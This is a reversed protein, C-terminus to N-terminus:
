DHRRVVRIKDSEMGVLGYICGYSHKDLCFAVTTDRTVLFTDNNEQYCYKEFFSDFSMSAYDKMVEKNKKVYSGRVNRISDHREETLLAKRFASLYPYKGYYKSYLVRMGSYITRIDMECIAYLSDGKDIFHLTQDGCIAITDLSTTSQSKLAEIDVPEYYDNVTDNSFSNSNPIKGNCSLVLFMLLFLSSFIDIRKHM